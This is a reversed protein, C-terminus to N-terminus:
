DGDNGDQGGAEPFVLFVGPLKKGANEDCFDESYLGCPFAGHTCFDKKGNLLHRFQLIFNIKELFFVSM